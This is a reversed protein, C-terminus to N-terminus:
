RGVTGGVAASSRRSLVDFVPRGAQLLIRRQELWWARQLQVEPDRVEDRVRQSYTIEGQFRFFAWTAHVQSRQSLARALRLDM